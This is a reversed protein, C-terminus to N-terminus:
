LYGLNRLREEIIREEEEATMEDGNRKGKMDQFEEIAKTIMEILQKDTLAGVKREYEKGNVFTMFSPLGKVEYQTSIMPNKDVNIKVVKCTGAFKNALRELAPEIQKCPLCWSAWCELLVPIDSEIVEQQFSKTTLEM